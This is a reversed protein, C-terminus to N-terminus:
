RDADKLVIGKPHFVDWSKPKSHAPSGVRLKEKATAGLFYRTRECQGSMSTKDPLVQSSKLSTEPIAGVCGQDREPALGESRRFRRLVQGTSRPRLGVGRQQRQDRLCM